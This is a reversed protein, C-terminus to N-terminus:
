PPVPGFGGCEMSVSCTDQVNDPVQDTVICRLVGSHFGGTNTTVSTSAGTPSNITMSGGGSQWSWAYSYGPTGGSANAVINVTTCPLSPDFKSTSSPLVNIGLPTSAAFVEKWVGAVKISVTLPVVFSGISGPRMYPANVDKWVGGVKVHISM